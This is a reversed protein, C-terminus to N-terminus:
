NDYYNHITVANSGSFFQNAKYLDSKKLSNMISISNLNINRDFFIEMKNESLNDNLYLNQLNPLSDFLDQSLFDIYNGSLNLTEINQLPKLADIPIKTFKNHGLDLNKLNSQSKFVENALSYLKNGQLKLDTINHYYYLQKDINQIENNSLNLEILNKSINNPIYSLKNESLNLIKLENSFTTKNIHVILNKSLDLNEINPISNFFNDDIFEIKNNSLNISSINTPNEYYENRNKLGLYPLYKIQNSSLNIKTLNPNHTFISESIETIKNEQLEIEKLSIMSNFFNKDIKSIRSNILKLTELNKLDQTGNLELFIDEDQPNSKSHTMNALELEKLNKLGAFTKSNISSIYNRDLNLKELESLGNFAQDEIYKINNGRLDLIKLSELNKFTNAKLKDILNRSFSLDIINTLNPFLFSNDNHQAIKFERINLERLNKFKDTLYISSMDLLVRGESIPKIVTANFTIKDANTDIKDNIYNAFEVAPYFSSQQLWTNFDYNFKIEINQSKGNITLIFPCTKMTDLEDSIKNKIEIEFVSESNNFRVGYCFSHKTNFRDLRFSISKSNIVKHEIDKVIIAQSKKNIGKEHDRRTKKQWNFDTSVPYVYVLNEKYDGVTYENGHAKVSTCFVIALLASSSLLYGHRKM